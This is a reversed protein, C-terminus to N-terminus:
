WTVPGTSSTLSLVMTTVCSFPLFLPSFNSIVRLGSVLTLPSRFFPAFTVALISEPPEGEGLLRAVRHAVVQTKGSGAGALVLLPGDGALVAQGQPPNLRSLDLVPAPKM